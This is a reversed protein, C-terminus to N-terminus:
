IRLLNYLQGKRQLEELEDCGGISKGNIFINPVTRRKTMQMLKERMWINKPDEVDVIHYRKGSSKIISVAKMCYPCYTKIFLVIRHKRIIHNITKKKQNKITQNKRIRKKRTQRKPAM